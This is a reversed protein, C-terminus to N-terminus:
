APMETDADEAHEREAEVCKMEKARIARRGEAVKKRYEKLQEDKNKLSSALRDHAYDSDSNMTIAKQLYDCAESHFGRYNLLNGINSVIWQGNSNEDVLAEARRYAVLAKDYLDLALCSNGLYGWYEISNQDELLLDDLLYLAVSHLEFEQALRAYKYRLSKNNPHKIYFNHVTDLAEKMKEQDELINALALAIDPDSDSEFKSLLEIAQEHEDLDIYCNALEVVIGPNNRISQESSKLLEIAQSTYKEFRFIMAVRQRVIASDKHEKSFDDLQKLGKKEDLKLECYYIHAKTRLADDGKQSKIEAELTNKAEQYKGEFFDLLWERKEASKSTSEDPASEIISNQKLKGLRKIQQRIQYCAAGTAAEIVGDTRKAEFKAPTVGLLDTPIHPADSDPILFFVRERGLKGIFLGMEFLVNDRVSTSESERMKTTDDPSFVFIGFDNSDLVKSLSEITTSSLEFVGQSWVTIEADHLLNQQVAYAINLGEVSSGIFARPKM